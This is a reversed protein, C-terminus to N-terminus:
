LFFTGYRAYLIFFSGAINDKNKVKKLEHLYKDKQPNIVGKFDKILM